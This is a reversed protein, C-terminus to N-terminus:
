LTTADTKLQSIDEPIKQHQSTAPNYIGYYLQILERTQLRQSPLGVSGLGAQVLELRDNLAKAGETFQRNRQAAKVASDEPHLWGLFKEIMTKKRVERDIPIIIYFHKQMIDAVELLRLIFNIHGMTQEKLLPHRQQEMKERLYAIYRDINIHTSRIIIQIPFGITNAFAGYGAIIAEQETESKLNFNLAEVRLVARLGGSKLIVTDNRIEAIPLYRQTGATTTGKRKRVTDPAQKPSM